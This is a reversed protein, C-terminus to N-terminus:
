YLPVGDDHPQMAIVTEGLWKIDYAGYGRPTESTRHESLPFVIAVDMSPTLLGLALETKNWVVPRKQGDVTVVVDQRNVDGLRVFVTAAKRMQISLRGEKPIQCCLRLWPSDCSFLMNIHIGADDQTVIQRQAMALSQLAGGMLDTNYSHYGNPTTFAFAGRARRRIDTFICDDTDRQNSPIIWDTTVIQSALLGNRIFREAERFYQPNGNQAIILAAEILDGTNNAEGRGRGDDRTEKAWGWSTRWPKLGIDFVRKAFEFYRNEGTVIGLDLLATVTGETSHLHTGAAPTLQGESTMTEQINIDAFRKALDIALDDKTARYYAILGGILRGSTTNLINSEPELWQDKTLQQSPFTRSKRTAAEITRVFKRALETSRECKQWQSLAALGLLTERCNHMTASPQKVAPDIGADVPFGLPNDLSKHLLTRLGNIVEADEPVDICDATVALADLFRGVMHPSGWFEHALRAPSETLQCRVFPMCGRRRDVAGHYIHEVGLRMFRRLDVPELRWPNLRPRDASLSGNTLPQEAATLGSPLVTAAAVTAVSKQLFTRRTQRTM